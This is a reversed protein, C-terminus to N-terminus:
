ARAEMREAIATPDASPIVNPFRFSAVLEDFLVRAEPETGVLGIWVIHYGAGGHIVTAWLHHYGFCRPFTLLTGVEGDVVVPERTDPVGCTAEATLATWDQLTRGISLPSGGVILGPITSSNPSAAIYDVGPSDVWPAGLEVLSETAPRVAWEVPRDVSYGYERSTFTDRTGSLGFAATPAPSPSPPPGVTPGRFLALGVLGLAIVLAAAAALRTATRAGRFNWLPRGVRQPISPLAAIVTELIQGPATTPDTELWDAIRDDFMSDQAGRM